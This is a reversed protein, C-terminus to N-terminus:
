KSLELVLVSEPELPLPRDLAFRKRSTVDTGTRHDGIREAFRELDLAVADGGRNFAVMLTDDDDYRFYVYVNGSPTFQMLRGDHVVKASKRWNILRKLYDQAALQAETLESGTFANSSDGKWGGPFDSRIIGHSDTGPHSMMIETGYYIQPIGRMTLYFAMAMRFRRPDDGLQTAIRSMDHNDAFIVLNFPDPYLYDNGLMEYTPTWASGWRPEDMTLSEAFAIQLPFDMLSPLWSEYGDHAVKGLQWYSVVAPNPSWEEGVINFEPYEARIRRAWHALFNKDAYPWTDQRIGSLGLYEIWWLANQVLYDALLPNRQNLDPMTDVFWGDSFARRDYESAYPDQHTTRAHSTIRIDDPSHLWDDTPPDRVWPHGSGIHNVIMDMILGLGHTRAADALERYEENSGFRPDVMYFDTTAYGHYSAEPMANELVPNLWVQTFGMSEVYDLHARVGALDGGHRGYPEDRAFSDAYGAVSDNSPDGNAFRDPTILYITDAASFGAMAQPDRPRAELVYDWTLSEAESTFGIEITGPRADPDIDLYIFLYNASDGRVVRDISIGPHDLSPEFNAIGEGSVMLQLETDAFGPGWSPPDVRDIGATHGPWPVLLAALLSRAARRLTKCLM